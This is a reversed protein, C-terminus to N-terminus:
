DEFLFLIKMLVSENHTVPYGRIHIKEPLPKSLERATLLKYPTAGVHAIVFREIDKIPLNPDCVESLDVGPWGIVAIPRAKAKEKRGKNREQPIDFQTKTGWGYAGFPSCLNLQLVLGKISGEQRDKSHQIFLSAFNGMAGWEPVECYYKDSLNINEVLPQVYDGFTDEFKKSIPQWSAIARMQRDTLESVLMTIRGTKIKGWGEVDFLDTNM